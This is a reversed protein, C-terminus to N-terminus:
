EGNDYRDPAVNIHIPLDQGDNVYFECRNKRLGVSLYGSEDTLEIIKGVVMEGKLADESGYKVELVCGDSWLSEHVVALLGSDVLYQSGQEDQYAGDEGVCVAFIVSKDYRSPKGVFDTGSLVPDGNATFVLELLEGWEKTRFLGEAQQEPTLANLVQCPDGIFYRGPKTFTSLKPRDIM